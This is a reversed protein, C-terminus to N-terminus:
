SGCLSWGNIEATISFKIYFVSPPCALFSFLKSLLRGSL